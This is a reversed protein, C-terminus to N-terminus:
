SKDMGIGVQSGPASTQDLATFLVDAQMWAREAVEQFSRGASEPAAVIACAIHIAAYERKTLGIATTQENMPFAPGNARSM